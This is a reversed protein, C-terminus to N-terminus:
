FSLVSWVAQGAAGRNGNGDPSLVDRASENPLIEYQGKVGVKSKVVIRQTQGRVRLEEIRTVKDETVINEVKPEGPETVAPASAAVAPAASTPSPKPADAAHASTAALLAIALSLAHIKM